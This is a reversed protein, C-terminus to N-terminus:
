RYWKVQGVKTDVEGDDIVGDKNEDYILSLSQFESSYKGAYYKYQIDFEDDIEKVLKRFFNEFFKYIILYKLQNHDIVLYARKNIKKYDLQVINGAYTIQDQYSQRATYQDTAVAVVLNPSFTITNTSNVYDTIKRIQIEKNQYIEIIGGNFFDDEREINTDVITNVTGSTSKGVIEWVDNQIINNELFLDSDTVDNQFPYLYIDFFRIINESDITYKVQYNIDSDYNTSDWSYTCEGTVGDIAMIQDTIIANGSTDLLSILAVAPIVSINKDEKFYTFTYTSDKQIEILDNTIM